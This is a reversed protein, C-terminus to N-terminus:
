SERLALQKFSRIAAVSAWVAMTGTKMRRGNISYLLDTYNLTTFNILRHFVVFAAFAATLEEAPINRLCHLLDKYPELPCGALEAIRRCPEEAVKPDRDLAWEPLTSGSEGIVRHFLGLNKYGEVM